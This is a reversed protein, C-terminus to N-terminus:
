FLLNEVCYENEKRGKYEIISAQKNDVNKNMVFQKKQERETKDRKGKNYFTRVFYLKDIEM